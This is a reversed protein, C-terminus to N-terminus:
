AGEGPLLCAQLARVPIGARLFAQTYGACCESVFVHLFAWLCPRLLAYAALGNGSSTRLRLPTCSSGIPHSVQQIRENPKFTQQSAIKALTQYGELVTGIVIQLPEDARPEHDRVSHRIQVVM